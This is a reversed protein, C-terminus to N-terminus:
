EQYGTVNTTSEKEDNGKEKEIGIEEEPKRNNNKQNKKKKCWGICRIIHYSIIVACPGQTPIILLLLICYLAPESRGFFGSDHDGNHVTSNDM